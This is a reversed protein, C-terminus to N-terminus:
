FAQRISKIFAANAAATIQPQGREMDDQLPTWNGAHYRSQRYRDIVYPAYNVNTGVIVTVGIPSANQIDSTISRGLTGTRRSPIGGRAALALVYRQQKLSKFKSQFSRGDVISTRTYFVELPKGSQTPYPSVVSEAAVGAARGAAEMATQLSNPSLADIQRQLTANWNGSLEIDFM